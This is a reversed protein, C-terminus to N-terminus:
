DRGLAHQFLELTKLRFSHIPISGPFNSLVFGNCLKSFDSPLAVSTKLTHLCASARMNKLMQRSFYHLNNLIQSIGM